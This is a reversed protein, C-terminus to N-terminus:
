SDVADLEAACRAIFRPADDIPLYSLLRRWGARWAKGGHRRRYLWARGAARRVAFRRLGPDLGPHDAVFHGLAATVRGLQRGEDASLSHALGVRQFALPLPLHLFAGREALRLALGYEQSHRVREDCGGVARLAAVRALVQTPNFPANRMVARLPRALRRPPAAALPAALDPAAGDPFMTRDAYALAADSPALAALLRETAQRHLLDDADVFKAFEGEALAICANTARASGGNPQSRIVTGPWQGALRRALALSGDTSGDDIIVTQRAFDGTQAAIAALTAALYPAKNYLPVLFSVSTM